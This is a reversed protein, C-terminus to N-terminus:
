YGAAARRTVHRIVMSGMLLALGAAIFTWTEPNLLPADDSDDFAAVVSGDGSPPPAAVEEAPQEGFPLREAFGTDLTTPPGGGGTPRAPSISPRTGGGSGSGGSGGDSTSDGDGDGDGADGDGGEGDDVAPEDAPPEPVDISDAAPRGDVDGDPGSRVARVEYTATSGAPADDDVFRTDDGAEVDGIEDGDRLVVYRLIDPEPGAAWTLTVDREDEPGTLRLRLDDVPEAPIAVTVRTPMGFPGPAPDPDFTTGEGAGAQASAEVQYVLNCPFVVEFTFSVQQSGGGAVPAWPSGIAACEEPADRDEPVVLNLSVAEIGHNNGVSGSIGRRGDLVAGPAPDTWGGSYEGHASAPALWALSGAAVLTAAALARRM